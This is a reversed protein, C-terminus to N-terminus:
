VFRVGVGGLPGYDAHFVDGAKAFVPRTFSGGLLIQGPELSVDFPAVKNALWAIGNGPHNLVGAALGTEEVVGNKHLICGVWRLDIADPKMPRGGLIIGANAANDSITDLARMPQKTEPDVPEVRLDIIELAPTVYETAALVETLGVGPGKLPENLIFALEVEILPTIFRDLPIDGGEAILMNDLLTGYDPEDIQSNIQMARSTLGIKYGIPRRGEARKIDLWASQIAYGDAMTMDPFTKSIQPIRKRTQEAQHLRRATAQIDDASITM